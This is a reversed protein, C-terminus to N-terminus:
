VHEATLVEILKESQDEVIGTDHWEPLDDDSKDDDDSDADEQAARKRKKVRKGTPLVDTTPRNGSASDSRTSEQGNGPLLPLGMAGVQREQPQEVHAPLSSEVHPRSDQPATRLEEVREVSERVATIQGVQDRM